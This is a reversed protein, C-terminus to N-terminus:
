THIGWDLAGSSVLGISLFVGIPSPLGHTQAGRVNPINNEKGGVNSLLHAQVLASELKRVQSIVAENGGRAPACAHCYDSIKSTAAQVFGDLDKFHFRKWKEIQLASPFYDYQYLLSIVQADAVPSVTRTHACCKACGLGTYVYNLSM